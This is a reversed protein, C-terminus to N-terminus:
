LEIHRWQSRMQKLELEYRCTVPCSVHRCMHCHNIPVIRKKKKKAVVGPVGTGVAAMKKAFRRWVVFAMGLHTTAMKAFMGVVINKIRQQTAQWQYWKIFSAHLVVHQRYVDAMKMQHKSSSLLSSGSSRKMLLVMAKDKRKMKHEVVYSQWQQFMQTLLSRNSQIRMSKRVASNFYVWHYWGHKLRNKNLVNRVIRWGIDIKTEIISEWMRNATYDQWTQWCHQLLLARRRKRFIAVTHNSRVWMPKWISWVKKMEYHHMRDQQEKLMYMLRGLRALSMAKQLSAKHNVIVNGVLSSWALRMRCRNYLKPLPVLPQLLDTLLAQIRTLWTRCTYTDFYSDEFGSLQHAFQLPPVEKLISPTKFVRDLTEAVFFLPVTELNSASRLTTGSQTIFLGGDVFDSFFYQMEMLTQIVQATEKTTGHDEQRKQDRQQQEQHMNNKERAAAEQLPFYEENLQQVRNVSAHLSILRSSLRKRAHVTTTHPNHAHAITQDYLLQPQLPKRKRSPVSTTRSPDFYSKFHQPM